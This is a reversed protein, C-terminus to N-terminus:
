RNLRLDQVTTCIPHRLVVCFHALNQHDVQLLRPQLGAATSVRRIRDKIRRIRNKISM